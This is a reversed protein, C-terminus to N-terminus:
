NPEDEDVWDPLIDNANCFQKVEDESLYGLLDRILNDKDLVGDEVMQLVKNTTDRM